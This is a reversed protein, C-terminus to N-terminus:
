HVREIFDNIIGFQVFQLLNVKEFRQKNEILVDQVSKQKQLQLYLYIVESPDIKKEPSVLIYKICLQQLEVNQM